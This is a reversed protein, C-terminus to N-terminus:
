PFCTYSYILGTFYKIFNPNYKAKPIGRTYSSIMSVQGDQWLQLTVVSDVQLAFISFLAAKIDNECTGNRLPYKLL